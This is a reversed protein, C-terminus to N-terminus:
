PPRGPVFLRVPEQTRANPFLWNALQRVHCLDVARKPFNCLCHPLVTQVDEEEAQTPKEELQELNRGCGQFFISMLNILIESAGQLNKTRHLSGSGSIGRHPEQALVTLVRSWLM